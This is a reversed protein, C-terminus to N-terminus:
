FSTEKSFLSARGSKRYCIVDSYLSFVSFWTSLILQKKKKKSLKSTTFSSISRRSNYTYFFYVGYGCCYDINKLLWSIRTQQTCSTQCILAWLDVCVSWCDTGKWLLYCTFSSSQFPLALWRAAGVPRCPLQPASPSPPLPLTDLPRLPRLVLKLLVRSHFNCSGKLLSTGQGHGEAEVRNAVCVAGVSRRGQLFGPSSVPPSWTRFCRGFGAICTQTHTCMRTQDASGKVHM